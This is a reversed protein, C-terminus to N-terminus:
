KIEHMIDNYVQQLLINVKLLLCLMKLLMTVANHMQICSLKGKKM